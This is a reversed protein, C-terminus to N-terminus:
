KTFQEKDKKTDPYIYGEAEKCMPFFCKRYPKGKKRMVAAYIGYVISCLIELALLTIAIIGFIKAAM